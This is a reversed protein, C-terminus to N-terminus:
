KTIFNDINKAILGSMENVPCINNTSPIDRIIGQYRDGRIFIKEVIRKRYFKTVIFIAVFFLSLGFLVIALLLSALNIIPHIKNLFLYVGLFAVALVFLFFGATPFPKSVSKYEKELNILTKDDNGIDRAFTITSNRSGDLITIARYGFHAMEEIKQDKQSLRVKIKKLAM